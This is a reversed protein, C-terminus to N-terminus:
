PLGQGEDNTLMICDMANTGIIRARRYNYNSHLNFAYYGLLKAIQQNETSLTFTVTAPIALASGTVQERSTTTTGSLLKLSTACTQKSEVFYNSICKTPSSFFGLRLFKGFTDIEAMEIQKIIAVNFLNANSKLHM